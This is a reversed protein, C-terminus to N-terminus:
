LLVLTITIVLLISGILFLINYFRNIRKTYNDYDTLEKKGVFSAIRIINGLTKSKQRDLKHCFEDYEKEDMKPSFVKPIVMIVGLFFLWIQHGWNILIEENIVGMSFYTAFFLIFFVNYVIVFRKFSM